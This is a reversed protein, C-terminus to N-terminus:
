YGTEGLGSGEEGGGLVRSLLSIVDEIESKMAILREYLFQSLSLLDEVEKATAEQEQPLDGQDLIGQDEEEGSSELLYSSLASIDEETPRIEGLSYKQLAEVFSKVQVPYSSSIAKRCVYIALAVDAPISYNNKDRCYFTQGVFSQTQLVRRLLTKRDVGLLRALSSLSLPPLGPLYSPISSTSSPALPESRENTRASGEETSTSPLSNLSSSSFAESVREYFSRSAKSLVRTYLHSRIRQRAEVMFDKRLM